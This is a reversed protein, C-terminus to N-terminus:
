RSWTFRSNAPPILVRVARASVPGPVDTGLIAAEVKSPDLCYTEPEIDVFVPRAGVFLAANASAVFTFPSTIVEDGEKVGHALMLLHLAATGSNVKEATLNMPALEPSSFDLFKPDFGIILVRTNTLM